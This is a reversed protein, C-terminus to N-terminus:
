PTGAADHGPQGVSTIPTRAYSAAISRRRRTADIARMEPLSGALARRRTFCADALTRDASDPRGLTRRRSSGGIASRDRGSSPLGSGSRLRHQERQRGAAGLACAFAAVLTRSASAATRWSGSRRRACVSGLGALDDAQVVLQVVPRRIKKTGSSPTACTCTGGARVVTGSRKSWNRRRVSVCAAAAAGSSAAFSGCASREACRRGLELERTRQAAAALELPSVTPWTSCALVAQEQERRDVVRPARAACTRAARARVRPKSIPGRMPSTSTSCCAAVASCISSATSTCFSSRACCARRCGADRLLDDRGLLQELRDLLLRLIGITRMPSASSDSPMTM